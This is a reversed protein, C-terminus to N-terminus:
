LGRLVEKVKEPTLNGYVTDGIMIAPAVGCVGLCSTFELTFKNDPTTQGVRIGLEDEIAKLIEPAGGIHCPASECLRIIHKGKAQTSFLSYFTAVGYVKSFPVNLEGAIQRMAEETLYGLAKQTEHLIPILADGTNGHKRIIDAVPSPHHSCTCQCANPMRM